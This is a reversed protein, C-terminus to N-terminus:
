DGAGGPEMPSVRRRWRDLAQIDRPGTRCCGGIVRAGREYWRQARGALDSQRDGTWRKAAPDFSEGANPYAILPLAAAEGITALAESVLTPSVCNVGIRGVPAQSQLESALVALPNGEATHTGDRLSLSVWADRVGFEGLLRALLLAEEASPITECLVIDAGQERMEDLLVELRARHFREIEALAVRYDGRYESGDARYAGFPGISVAVRVGERGAADRERCAIRVTDRLLREAEAERFGAARFGPMSAQYSATTIVDAGAALYMRHVKAIADPDEALLRASWLPHALDYGLRELETALGGDLILPAEGDREARAM